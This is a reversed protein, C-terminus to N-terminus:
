LNLTIADNKQRANVGSREILEFPREILAAKKKQRELM